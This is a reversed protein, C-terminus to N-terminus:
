VVECLGTWLAILKAENVLCFGYPSSFSLLHAGVSDRIVGGIGLQGLHGLASGSFNLKLSGVPIPTWSPLVQVKSPSSLAIKRLM